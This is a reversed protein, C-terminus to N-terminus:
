PLAAYLIALEGVPMLALAKLDTSTRYASDACFVAIALRLKAETVGFSAALAALDDADLTLVLPDTAYAPTSDTPATTTMAATTTVVAGAAADEAAESIFADWIDAQDSEADTASSRFDASAVITVTSATAEYTNMYLLNIGPLAAAFDAEYADGESPDIASLGLLVFGDADIWGDAVLRDVLDALVVDADRGFWDLSDAVSTADANLATMGVVRDFRNIKLELSPNADVTLVTAPLLSVVAMVVTAFIALAGSLYMPLRRLSFRRRPAGTAAAASVRGVLADDRTVPLSASARLLRNFQRMNM